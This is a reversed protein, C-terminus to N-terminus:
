RRPEGIAIAAANEYLVARLLPARLARLMLGIYMDVAIEAIM